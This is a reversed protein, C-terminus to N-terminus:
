EYRLEGKLEEFEKRTLRLEKTCTIPKSKEDLVNSGEYSLYMGLKCRGGKVVGKDTIVYRSTRQESMHILASLSLAVFALGGVTCLILFKGQSM